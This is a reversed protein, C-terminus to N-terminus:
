QSLDRGRSLLAHTDKGQVAAPSHVVGGACRSIATSNCVVTYQRQPRVVAMAVEVTAAVRGSGSSGGSGSGSGSGDREVEVCKEWTVRKVKKKGGADAGLSIHLEATVRAFNM